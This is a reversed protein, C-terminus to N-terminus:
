SATFFPDEHSGSARKRSEDLNSLHASLGVLDGLPIKAVAKQTDEPLTLLFALCERRLTEARAAFAQLQEAFPAFPGGQTRIADMDAGLQAWEAPTFDYLGAGSGGTYPPSSRSFHDGRPKPAEGSRQLKYPHDNSTKAPRPKPPTRKQPAKSKKRTM